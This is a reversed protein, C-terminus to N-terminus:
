SGEPEPSTSSEAASTPEAVVPMLAFLGPEDVGSEEEVESAKSERADKRVDAERIMEVWAAREELRAKAHSLADTLRAIEADKSTLSAEAEDARAAAADLERGLDSVVEGHEKERQQLRKTLDAVQRRMEGFAVSATEHATIWIKMVLQQGAETVLDTIPPLANLLAAQEAEEERIRSLAKSVDSKRRGLATTAQQLTPEAGGNALRFETLYDAVSAMLADNAADNKQEDM